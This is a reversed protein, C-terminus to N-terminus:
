DQLVRLLNAPEANMMISLVCRSLLRNVDTHPGLRWTRFDLGWHDIM